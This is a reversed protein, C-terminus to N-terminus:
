LYIKETFLGTRRTVPFYLTCLEKGPRDVNEYSKRMSFSFGLRRGIQCEARNKNPKPPRSEYILRGFRDYRFAQSYGTQMGAVVASTDLTPLSFTYSRSTRQGLANYNYYYNHIGSAKLGKTLKALKGRTWSVTYGDYTTPCGM